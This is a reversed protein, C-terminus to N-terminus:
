HCVIIIIVKENVYAHIGYKMYTTDYQVLLDKVVTMHRSMNRSNKLEFLKYVSGLQPDIELSEVMYRFSM